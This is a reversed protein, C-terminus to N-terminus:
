LVIIDSDIICNWRNSISIVSAVLILPLNSFKIHAQTQQINSTCCTLQLEHWFFMTDSSGASQTRIFPQLHYASNKLCGKPFWVVVVAESQSSYLINLGRTWVSPLKHVEACSPKLALKPHTSIPRPTVAQAWVTSRICCNLTWPWPIIPM